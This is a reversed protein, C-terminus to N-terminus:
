FHSKGQTHNMWTHWLELVSVFNEPGDDTATKNAWMALKLLVMSDLNGTVVKQQSSIPCQCCFIRARAQFISLLSYILVAFRLYECTSKSEFKGQAHKGRIRVRFYPIVVHAKRDLSHTEWLLVRRLFLRGVSISLSWQFKWASHHSFIRPYISPQLCPVRFVFDACSILMLTSPIIIDPPHYHNATVNPGSICYM